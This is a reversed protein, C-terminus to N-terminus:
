PTRLARTLVDLAAEEAAARDRGVIPVYADPFAFWHAHTILASLIVRATARPDEIALEGREVGDLLIRELGRAARGVVEVAHFLALEPFRQLESVSLQLLASYGPQEMTRWFRNAFRRVREVSSESTAEDDPPEDRQLTGVITTRVVERFLEEKTPFLGQLTAASVGAVLAIESERAADFGRRTFEQLAAGLIRDVRREDSSGNPITSHRM